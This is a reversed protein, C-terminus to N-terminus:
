LAEAERLFDCIECIGKAHQGFFTGHHQALLTRAGQSEAELAAIRKMVARFAKLSADAAEEYDDTGYTASSHAYLTGYLTILYELSLPPTTM